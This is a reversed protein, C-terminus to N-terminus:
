THDFWQYFAISYYMIIIHYICRYKCGHYHCTSWTVVSTMYIICLEIAMFPNTENESSLVLNRLFIINRPTHSLCPSLKCM